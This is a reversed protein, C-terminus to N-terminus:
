CVLRLKLSSALLLGVGDEWDEGGARVM